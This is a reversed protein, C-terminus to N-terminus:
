LDLTLDGDDRLRDVTQGGAQGGTQNGAQGSDASASRRDRERWLVPAAFGQWGWRLWSLVRLALWLSWALMLARYVWISVSVLTVEATQPASRDLYWRLETATSGNGAVQMQPSGLLGQQVALLLSWLAALTLVALAVQVLNFRWAAVESQQRRRLGLAILWLAVLVGVWAGAQSLGVGLLFWDAFGLPTLGSRALILAVLALVALLGWFLVAPGMLPGATWLVWRDAGLRIRTEANVGPMGLDLSSPQYLRGLGAPERWGLVVQQTGPVLPLDIADTVLPLPQDRGDIRFRTLEAGPPLKVMHRGGQSSRLTLELAAEVGRRSPTLHYRSRDLTLTPGPVGLPRSLQLELREGPWPRWTPLWREAPGLQQVPAFGSTQLHWLPSLELRWIETLRPDDSAVLRLRGVPELTSSWADTVRGPPLSVLMHGDSVQRNPSTVAEGPLLPLRLTVPYVAPSLREVRTEVTWDLGFRLTRRVELLPPLQAGADADGGPAAAEVRSLRLQDAPRGDADLGELLWAPDVRAVVRHPRRPLPLDVQEAAPLAGLLVLQHRGAPLPVQLRGEPDLRLGDLPEGDLLLERPRWAESGGPIPLAVAAAADVSLELRLVDGSVTLSLEAIDVCNPLCDPPALLRQKLTDLLQPPPFAGIASAPFLAQAREPGQAQRQHEIRAQAPDQVPDQALAQVPVQAQVQGPAGLLGGGLLLTGFVLLSASTAPQRGAGWGSWGLWGALRLGLTVLLLVRLLALGLAAAPPLLWLRVEHGASVPGNWDLQVSRWRWDPVGAGTQVRADPDMTPLSPAQKLADPRDEQWVQQKAPRENAMRVQPAALDADVSGPAPVRAGLLGGGLGSLTLAGPRDLQPFLGDRLEVVSFPLLILVLALLALRQYLQVVARLRALAPRGAQPRLARLLAIAALLHLWVWRPAGPEQWTLVLGLLALLGWPWRYLRAVALSIVLVLFIDLLSWRALWSDPLNDVGDVALLEWGAPLHLRASIDDFPLAWGSAPLAMALGPRTDAGIAEVRGEAILDLQGQRVEVGERGASEPPTADSGAAMPLRTIFQPRSDVQVQGLRLAPEAELRWRTRLQGQLHDRLSLGGGDLDLWLERTLRLRDTTLAGRSSQVLRLTMGPQMLYAPLRQWDSPLRTQRPDVAQAGEIEVRRLDPRAAFAWVEQAPWPAPLAELRLASVMGPHHADLTLVWRGPRVQLRLRGQEDLRAPLPSDLALPIGGPLMLPGLSLERAPGSVDLAVRTAVRLPISDEVRRMVELRLTAPEASAPGGDAGADAPGLWLRGDADIRPSAIAQGDLRLTVLGIEPPIPLADPRRSWSLRGTLQHEGPALRVAPRGAREVVPLPREGDAMDLPWHAADGPLPVWSDRYVRWRQSLRAGKDDVELSLRGPWACIRGAAAAGISASAGLPCDREDAEHLVWPVWPRLAEPIAIDPDQRAM